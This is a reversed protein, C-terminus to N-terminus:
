PTLQKSVFSPLTFSGSKSGEGPRNGLKRIAGYASARKGESVESEIKEIHKKAERKLKDDFQRKLAIYRDSRKGHAAYARQRQRKIRRLEETFYPQDQDGVLVSKKPFAADVLYESKDQFKDVMETSTLNDEELETWDEEQLTLGFMALGSEPFPRVEVRRRIESGQTATVARPLVEVGKHDSDAGQRGEDVQLPPLRTPEQLLRHCDTIIVDLTKDDNKNTYFNVIQRLTPDLSFLLDLSMDNIDAGLIVGSDPHESRLQCLTVSLFEAMKTKCRSRPPSYFSGCIFTNMKGTPHKPKLLAFCAELPSPIPVNLKTLSFRESSCALATGGGRRAGPRPTSVYKIGNTEFMSEIAKQHKKSEQKEWVETLICLDTQRMLIDEALNNWKGWVSRANYLTVSPVSLAEVLRNDRRVTTRVPRLRQQVPPRPPRYGWHNPISRPTAPLGSSEETESESISTNGDLQNLVFMNSTDESTEIDMCGIGSENVSIDCGDLQVIDSQRDDDNRYVTDSYM